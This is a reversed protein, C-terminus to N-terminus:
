SEPEQNGASGLSLSKLLRDLEDPFVRVIRDIKFVSLRGAHIWRHMTRVSVFAVGAAEPITLLPRFSKGGLQNFEQDQM